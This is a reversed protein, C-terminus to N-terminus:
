GTLGSSIYLSKVNDNTVDFSVVSKPNNVLVNVGDNPNSSIVRLVEFSLPLAKLMADGKFSDAVKLKISDVNQRQKDTLEGFVEGEETSIYVKTTETAFMSGKVLNSLNAESMTFTTQYDIAKIKDVSIPCAAIIGDHLLHYTFRLSKSSYKINNSEIKLDVEDSEICQLIKQLRGLDPLNLKLPELENPFDFFCYMIVTGDPSTLLSSIGKPQVNLICTNNLKSIPILFNNIFSKKNKLLLNM